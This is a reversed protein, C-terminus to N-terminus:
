RPSGAPAVDFRLDAHSRSVVDTVVVKWAGAPPNWDLPIVIDLKGQDARHNATYELAPTGDPHFVEVRLVHKVPPAGDTLVTATLRVDAGPAFASGGTPADLRADM